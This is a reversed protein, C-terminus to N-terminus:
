PHSRPGPSEAALLLPILAISRSTECAYPLEDQLRRLASSPEGFIVFLWSTTVLKSMCAVVSLVAYWRRWGM